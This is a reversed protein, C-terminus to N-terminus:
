ENIIPGHNDASLKNIADTDMKLLENADVCIDKIPMVTTVASNPDDEESKVEVPPSEPEEQPQAEEEKSGLIEIEGEVEVHWWGGVSHTCTIRPSFQASANEDVAAKVPIVENFKVTEKETTFIQHKQSDQYSFLLYADFEGFVLASEDSLPKVFISTVKVRCDEMNASNFNLRINSKYVVPKSGIPEIDM